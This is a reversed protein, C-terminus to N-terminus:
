GACSSSCVAVVARTSASFAIVLGRTATRKASFATSRAIRCTASSAWPISLLAVLPGRLEAETVADPIRVNNGWELSEKTRGGQLGCHLAM